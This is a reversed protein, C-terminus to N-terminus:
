QKGPAATPNVLWSIFARIFIVAGWAAFITAVALAAIGVLWM